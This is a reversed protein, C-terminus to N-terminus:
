GEVRARSNVADEYHLIQHCNACLVTCKAVEKLIRATSWGRCIAEGIHQDKTSPDRHHFVLARFDEFGCSACRQNKKLEEVFARRNERALIGKLRLKERIEPDQRRRAERQNIRERNKQYYEVRYARTKERNRKKWERSWEPHTRSKELVKERHSWYYIRGLERVREPHAERWRRARENQQDKEKQTKARPM